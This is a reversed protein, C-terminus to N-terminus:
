RQSPGHWSFRNEPSKYNIPTEVKKMVEKIEDFHVPSYDWADVGVDCSKGNPGLKAHSHGFLHWSGHHSKNWVRMSFHNLWIFEGQVQIGSQQRIWQWGLKSVQDFRDHNGLVLFKQGNLQDFIQQIKLQPLRWWAFDGLHYVIDTSKVRANWNDILCENMEDSSNFPRKCFRIINGHSFHTDSTFFVEQLKKRRQQMIQLQSLLLIGLILEVNDIYNKKTLL